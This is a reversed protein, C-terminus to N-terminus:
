REPIALLPMGGQQNLYKMLALLTSTKGTQRPAHMLFYKEAAILQLIADLDFRALPPFCYHKQCNVPGETNFFKM